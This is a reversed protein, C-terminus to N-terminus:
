ILNQSSINNFTRNFLYVEKFKSMRCEDAFHQLKKGGCADEIAAHRIHLNLFSYKNLGIYLLKEDCFKTKASTVISGNCYFKLKLHIYLLQSEQHAEDSRPSGDVTM